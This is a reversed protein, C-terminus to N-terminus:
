RANIRRLIDKVVRQSARGDVKGLIEDKRKQILLLRNIRELLVKQLLYSLKSPKKLKYAFDLQKQIEMDMRKNISFPFLRHKLRLHVFDCIIVPNGTSLYEFVTSSAETLLVDSLNYLEASNTFEVPLLSIHSYKDSLEKYLKNQHQYKKMTWSFHHLKILLNYEETQTVLSEGFVEISSPYFTPTYLITKKNKDLNLKNKFSKNAEFMVDLKPFGTIAIDTDVGRRIFENKRYEGEIYRVNIRSNYDTYYCSKIGIGHYLLVALTKPICYKEAYSSKGFIIVDFEAKKINAIREKETKASIFKNDHYKLVNKILTIEINYNDIYASFYIDFIPNKEMEKIVPLFQPLYYLHYINFLTKIKKM